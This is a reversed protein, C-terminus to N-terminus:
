INSVFNEDNGRNFQTATAPATMQKGGSAGGMMGRQTTPRVPCALRYEDVFLLHTNTVWGENQAMNYFENWKAQVEWYRERVQARDQLYSVAYFYAKLVDQPRADFHLYVGLSSKTEAIMFRDHSDFNTVLHEIESSTKYFDVLTKASLGMQVRMSLRVTQGVTVRELRNVVAPRLMTGSKFFEELAILYRSENFTRLCVAKVAKINALIHAVTVVGFLVYLAFQTKVATLLFLGLFSAILNVCTEQSSDKSAVDALNGRLAHHQTLASRTAGGAVGVIAKMATTACLIYTAHQPFRPLCFIEVGMAVDNLVDARIRWKKSDLDLECGKLWAFLIRGLHGTGDKIVWTVTASLPNVYDSGVGM